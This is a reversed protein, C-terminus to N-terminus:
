TPKAKKKSKVECNIFDMAYVVASKKLEQFQTFTGYIRLIFLKSRSIFLLPM